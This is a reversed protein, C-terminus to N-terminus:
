ARGSAVAYRFVHGCIQRTRHANELVRRQEIRRVVKLLKPATFTSAAPTGMWPFVDRELRSLVRSAHRTAWNPSHNLFWARAVAEFSNPAGHEKAAKQAKRHESPNIGQARDRICMESGM